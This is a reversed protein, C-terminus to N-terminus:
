LGVPVIHLERGTVTEWASWEGTGAFSLNRRRYEFTPQEPRMGGLLDPLSFAVDVTKEPAATELTVTIPENSGRRLQVEIAYVNALAPPLMEIHKLPTSWLRVTTKLQTTSALENARALVAASKLEVAVNWFSLAVGGWAEEGTANLPRISYTLSENPQWQLPEAVAPEAGVPAPMHADLALLTPHVEARVVVPAANTILVERPIGDGADNELIKVTLPDTAPRHLRLWVPVSHAVVTPSSGDPRIQFVMEGLRVEQAGEVLMKAILAYMQMSCDFVLEFGQADINQATHEAFSLGLDNFTGTPHFAAQEHGGVLLEAYPIALPEGRLWDRLADLRRADPDPVITLRLRVRYNDVDEGGLLLVSMAPQGQDADFAVGYEDPLVYLQNPVGTEKVMGHPTPIWDADLDADIGAGTVKVYIPKNDRNSPPFFAGTAQASSQVVRGTQTTPAPPDPRDPRPPLRVEVREIVTLLDHPRIISDRINGRRTHEGPVPEMHTTTGADRSQRMVMGINENTFRRFMDPYRPPRPGPSPPHNAPQIQYSVEASVEFWAQSDEQLIALVQNVDVTAQALRQQVVDPAWAPAPLVQPEGLVLPPLQSAVLRVSFNNLPLPEADVPIGDPRLLDFTVQLVYADDRRDIFVAPWRSVSSRRAVVATPIYYVIGNTATYPQGVVTPATTFIPLNQLQAQFLHRYSENIVDVNQARLMMPQQLLSVAQPIDVLTVINEGPM